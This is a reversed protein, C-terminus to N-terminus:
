WALALARRPIFEVQSLRGFKGARRQNKGLYGVCELAVKKAAMTKIGGFARFGLDICAIRNLGDTRYQSLHQGSMVPASTLIAIAKSIIGAESCRESEFAM